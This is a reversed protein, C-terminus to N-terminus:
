ELIQALGRILRFNIEEIGELEQILEGYTRGVKGEFVGIVSGAIELNDKDLRAYVPEIKGKSIKTVLLDSTLM